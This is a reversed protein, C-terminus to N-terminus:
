TRKKYDKQSAILAMSLKSTMLLLCNVNTLPLQFQNFSFQFHVMEWKSHLMTM